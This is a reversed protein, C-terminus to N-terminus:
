DLPIPPEIALEGFRYYDLQLLWTLTYVVANAYTDNPYIEPHMEAVELLREIDEDSVKIVYKESM